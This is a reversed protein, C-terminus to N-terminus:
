ASTSSSLCYCSIYQFGMMAVNTNSSSSIFLLMLHVSIPVASSVQLQPDSLCYCSIYQFSILSAIFASTTPYVTVHSTNFNLPHNEDMGKVKSLCYCSIYQFIPPYLQLQRHSLIFLLMLHISISISSSQPSSNSRYVTVHSPYVSISQAIFLLM